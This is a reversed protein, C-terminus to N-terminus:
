LRCWGSAMLKYYKFSRLYAVEVFEMAEPDSIQSTDMDMMREWAAETNEGEKGWWQEVGVKSGMWEEVYGAIAAAVEEEGYKMEGGSGASTLHQQAQYKQMISNIVLKLMKKDPAAFREKRVEMNKRMQKAREYREKKGLNRELETITDSCAEVFEDMERHKLLIWLRKYRQKDIVTCRSIKRKTRQMVRESTRIHGIADTLVQVRISRLAQLHKHTRWDESTYHRRAKPRKPYEMTKPELITARAAERIWEIDDRKEGSTLGLSQTTSYAVDKLIM